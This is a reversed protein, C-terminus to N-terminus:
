PIECFFITSKNGQFSTWDTTSKAIV